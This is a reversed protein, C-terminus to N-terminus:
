RMRARGCALGSVLEACVEICADSGVYEIVFSEIGYACRREREQQHEKCLGAFSAPERCEEFRWIAVCLGYIVGCVYLM